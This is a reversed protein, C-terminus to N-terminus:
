NYQAKMYFRSKNLVADQGERCRIFFSITYRIRSWPAASYYSSM